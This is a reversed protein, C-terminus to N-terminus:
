LSIEIYEQKGQDPIRVVVTKENDLYIWGSDKTKLESQSSAMEMTEGNWLAKSPKQEIGYFRIEYSRPDPNYKGERASIEFTIGKEDKSCTCNTLLFEGKTYGFSIGDDEYYQVKSTGSPYVSLILPDISKEDSYQVIDQMPIIAGGQVFIPCFDLPTDVVIPLPGEHRENTWFNFWEGEPLYIILSKANEYVVPAVLLWDGFMFQREAINGDPTYELVVADDPFDIFMARMVPIGTQTAQYFCNYIYPLLQYRLEIYKRSIKEVEEGFSWPEQDATGIMTHTRCFPYFVGIQIWRAYLEPSPDRRFGGIDVGVFPEGSIGINLCMPITLRLHEWSSENDGTWVAAYRQIGSFAARSLIFPRIEPRLHLLGEYIARAMELGYINHFERHDTIRGDVDHVVDLPFTKKVGSISPEAMDSWIGAIGIDLYDKYLNGWWERTRSNAFDPFYCEPPWQPGIFLKGDPLRVFHNGSVGQDCVHYREDVKIGPFNSVVVRFGQERLDSVLKEPNPFRNKDWTFARFEDTYDLDLWIVDCPIRRKRFEDAIQRVRSEPYYSWRCQHYGLSWLPPLPIRGTLETYLFIVKKPEPGYIFYYDLPGGSAGFSYYDAAEKGMDFSSRYTNDFFIGYSRGERLALFFPISEYIPDSPTYHYINDTNWMTLSQERKDLPGTKEGFGFYYEGEPMDKWCRVQEEDWGMGKAVDDRNILWGDASYFELRCPNKGIRLDIDDTSIKFFEPEEKFDFKPPQSQQKVIAWSDRKIQNPTILHVRVINSSIITIEVGLEGCDIGLISGNLNYSQVSGVSLWQKRVM